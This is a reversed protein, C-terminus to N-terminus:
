GEGQDRRAQEALFRELEAGLEDGSPLRDGEPSLLNRGRASVFTDYQQELAQVVELVEASRGVESDIQARTRGAAAHLGETPLALGTARMVSQLLVEAAAPYEAQSVYHPVHVAFGMAKRGSQGLRYELLHGASAPVQVSSVWPEAGVLLEKDTGHVTVGVPRTHPVAMPIANMGVTLRVRFRAILMEVAATFREWQVDPEPGALILFPTGALDHLLHLALVPGTVSEWHDEVLLMVPRRARYDHLQDVDFTALVRSDLSEFMADRALRRASGADIFGDLSEVLVPARLEPADAVVTFLGEPDLM